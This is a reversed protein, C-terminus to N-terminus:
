QVGESILGDLFVQLYIGGGASATTFSTGQLEVAFPVNSPLDLAYEPGVGYIARPDPAGNTWAQITTTTATTSVAGHIGGGGPFFHIPGELFYKQGIKLRLAYNKFLNEIDSVVMGILFVRLAMIKMSVPIPLKGSDTMNTENIGKTSSIPAQFLTYLATTATNAAVKLTDYFCGLRYRLKDNLFASSNM